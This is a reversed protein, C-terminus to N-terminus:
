QRLSRGFCKYYTKKNIASKGNATKMHNIGSSTKGSIKRVMSWVKKISTNSNLKSVYNQWSTRKAKKITKRTNARTIKVNELNANTPRINFKKLSARRLRVARKCTDDFWPRHRKSKASTKPICEEAISHLTTTFTDIPDETPNLSSDSLKEVCRFSFLGWHARDMKWYKMNANLLSDENKSVIQFHDSGCQDDHIDWSYDLFVSPHCLSLDLSSYNGTAPHLYTSKKNNMLCINNVSILDELIQGTDNIDNCGWLPNHGNFDGVIIYPTPLQSVLDEIQKRSTKKNPPLYVSCITMVKHLTVRIAVAQLNTTLKIQSHPLRSNVMITSGGSARECNTHIFNYLTYDNLNINDSQKLFTEQLCLVSPTFKSILLLIENFNARLGRCKWQIISNEM